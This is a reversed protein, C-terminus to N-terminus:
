IWFNGLIYERRRKDKKLVKQGKYVRAQIRGQNLRDSCTIFIERTLLVLRAMISLSRGGGEGGGGSFFGSPRPGTDMTDWINASFICNSIVSSAYKKCNRAIKESRRQTIKGQIYARGRNEDFDFTVDNTSIWTDWQAAFAQSRLSITSESPNTFPQLYTRLCNENNCVTKSCTWFKKAFKNKWLCNCAKAFPQLVTDSFDKQNALALSWTVMRNRCLFLRGRSYWSNAFPGLCECITAVSQCITSLMKAFVTALMQKCTTSFLRWSGRSFVKAFLRDFKQLVGRVPTTSKLKVIERPIFQM